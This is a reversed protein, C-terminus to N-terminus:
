IDVPIGDTYVNDDIICMMVETPSSMCPLIMKLTVYNSVSINNGAFGALGLGNVFVDKLNGM